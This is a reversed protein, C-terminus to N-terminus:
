GDSSVPRREVDDRSSRRLVLWSIVVAGITGVALGIVWVYGAVGVPPTSGDVLVGTAILSGAGIAFVAGVLAYAVVGSLAAFMVNRAWVAVFVALSVSLVVAALAGIPVFLDAARWIHAHLATGLAASATGTAIAAAIGRWRGVGSSRRVVVAAAPAAGDDNTGTTDGAVPM